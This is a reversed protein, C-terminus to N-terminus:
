GVFLKRPGSILSRVIGVETVGVGGSRVIRKTGFIGINYM